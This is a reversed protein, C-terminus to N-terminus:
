SLTFDFRMPEDQHAMRDIGCIMLRVTKSCFAIGSELEQIPSLMLTPGEHFHRFCSVEPKM